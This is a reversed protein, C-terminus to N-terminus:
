CRLCFPCVRSQVEASRGSSRIPLFKPNRRSTRVSRFSRNIKPATTMPNSSSTLSSSNITHPYLQGLHQILFFDKRNWSRGLRARNAHSRSFMSNLLRSAKKALYASSNHCFISSSFANAMMRDNWEHNWTIKVWFCLDLKICCISLCRSLTIHFPYFKHCCTVLLLTKHLEVMFDNFENPIWNLGLMPKNLPIWHIVFFYGSSISEM